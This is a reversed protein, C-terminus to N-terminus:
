RFRLSFVDSNIFDSEYFSTLLHNSSHFKWKYLHTVEVSNSQLLYFTFVSIKNIFFTKLYLRGCCCALVNYNVKTLYAPIEVYLQLNPLLLKRGVCKIVSRFYKSLKSIHHQHLISFILKIQRTLLSTSFLAL